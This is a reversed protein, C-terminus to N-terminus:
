SESTEIAEDIGSPLYPTVTNEHVSCAALVLVLLM